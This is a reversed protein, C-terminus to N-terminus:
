ATMRAYVEATTLSYDPELNIKKRNINRSIGLFAYVMDKPDTAFVSRHAELLDMLDIAFSGRHFDVQSSCLMQFRYTRVMSIHGAAEALRVGYRLVRWPITSRGYHVTARRAVMIEQVIWARSFWPRAILRQLSQYAPDSEPPIRLEQLEPPPWTLAMLREPPLHQSVQHLEELLGLAREAGGDQSDQGLYVEVCSAHEYIHSMLSVQCSKEDDDAQNICVWVIWGCRSCTGSM